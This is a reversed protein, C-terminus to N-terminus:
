STKSHTGVDRLAALIQGAVAVVAEPNAFAGEYSGLRVHASALGVLAEGDSALQAHVSPVRLDEAELHKRDKEQGVALAQAARHVLDHVLAVVFAPQGLDSAEAIGGSPLRVLDSAQQYSAPLAHGVEAALQDM